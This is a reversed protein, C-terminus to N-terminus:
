DKVKMNNIFAYPGFFPGEVFKGSAKYQVFWEQNDFNEIFKLINPYRKCTEEHIFIIKVFTEYFFIDALTMHDGILFTKGELHKDLKNFSADSKLVFKVRDEDTTDRTYVFTAIDQNLKDSFSVM